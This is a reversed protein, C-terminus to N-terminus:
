AFAVEAISVVFFNVSEELLMFQDGVVDAKLQQHSSGEKQVFLVVLAQGREFQM